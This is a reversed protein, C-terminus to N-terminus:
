LDYACRFGTLPERSLQGTYPGRRFRFERELVSRRGPHPFRSGVGVHKMIREYSLRSLWQEDSLMERGLLNTSRIDFCSDVWENANGVMDQVGFPSEPQFCESVPLLLQYDHEGLLNKTDDNWGPFRNEASQRTNAGEFLSVCGRARPGRCALEWEEETPLRGGTFWAFLVAENFTVGVIPADDHYPKTHDFRRWYQIESQRMPGHVLKEVEWIFRLFDVRTVPYIDVRFSDILIRRGPSKHFEDDAANAGLSSIIAQRDEEFLGVHAKRRPIMAVPRDSFFKRRM